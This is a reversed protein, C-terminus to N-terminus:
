RYVLKMIHRKLLCDALRKSENGGHFSAEQKRNIGMSYEQLNKIRSCLYKKSIFYLISRKKEAYHVDRQKSLVNV